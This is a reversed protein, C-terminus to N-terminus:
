TQPTAKRIASQATAATGVRRVQAETLPREALRHATDTGSPRLGALLLELHRRWADPAADQTTEIIGATSWMVLSMDTATVDPRVLHQEQAQRLLSRLLRRFETLAGLEADSHHWIRGLFGSHRAQVTGVGRLLQELGTGDDHTAAERALALLELRITGVLEDILAQKTAFRRYLTGVGVGAKRAIEDVGADLGHAVFVQSAAELIRERNTAADRRLPKAPATATRSTM